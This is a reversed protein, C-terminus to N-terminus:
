KKAKPAKKATGFANGYRYYVEFTLTNIATAYVRGGGDVSWRDDGDWSGDSCLKANQVQNELLARKLAAEFPTWYPGRGKRPSEPGDYQNLALAAYYWYYYDISKKAKDWAPLDRVLLKASTELVPDDVNHKVFTRICMGVAAFSPHGLFDENKGMAKVISGADPRTL